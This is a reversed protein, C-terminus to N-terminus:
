QPCFASFATATSFIQHKSTCVAFRQRSRHKGAVQKHQTSKKKIKTSWQCHMTKIQKFLDSLSSIVKKKQKSSDHNCNTSFKHRKDVTRKAFHCYSCVFSVLLYSSWPLLKAMFKNLMRSCLQIKTTYRSYM